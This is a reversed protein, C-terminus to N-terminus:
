APLATLESEVEHMLGSMRDPGFDFALGATSWLEPLPRSGGLALGQQYKQVAQKADRRYNVWMQLAGIQAIGYEIYYFPVGFLHLQRQWGRDLYADLGSWNIEHGFRRDLDRWMQTRQQRTHTPNTYLWQQFADITAIWPLIGIIGELHQRRARNAEHQDYFEELFPHALLEMSMSAVEAFEMPYHRYHLLSDDACLMSHFAHGGEHLLTILDRHLGAANMFIFPQRIRDRNYQYGGPAKGKRSDLDLCDPKRLRAFMAGLDRDMKQFIRETGQVFQDVGEFPRLPDRGKVDVALDWPRLRDLGLGERRQRDLARMLPVVLKEVSEHFAFCDQPTYDFRRMRDHQYDRFNDYGANRAMQHRHAIMKDFIDDIREADQLRRDGIARWAAERQSRDTEELYRAMQPLTRTQGDFECTMAGCIEQYQQDLKALEVEIPVNAERFMEVDRRADRVLVEYRQADLQGVAPSAILRKDLEFAIPKYKPEIEEVFQLFAKRKSESETDCTMAIYRNAQAESIASELESRDLLWRELQEATDLPRELLDRTLPEIQSWDGCDIHAPVFSTDIASTPM